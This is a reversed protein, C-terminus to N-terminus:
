SWDGWGSQGQTEEEDQYQSLYPGGVHGCSKCRKRFHGDEHRFLETDNSECDICDSM